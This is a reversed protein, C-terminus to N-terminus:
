TKRPAQKGCRLNQTHHNPQPLAIGNNTKKQQNRLYKTSAKLSKSPSFKKSNRWILFRWRSWGRRMKSPEIPSPLNIREALNIWKTWRWCCVTNTNIKLRKLWRLWSRKKWWMEFTTSIFINTHTTRNTPSIKNKQAQIFDTKRPM